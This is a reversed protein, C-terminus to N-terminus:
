PCLNTVNYLLYPDLGDGLFLFSFPLITTQPPQFTTPLPHKSHGSTGLFLVFLHWQQKSLPNVKCPFM